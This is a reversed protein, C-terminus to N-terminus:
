EEEVKMIVVMYEDTSFNGILDVDFGDGLFTLEGALNTIVTMEDDVDVHESKDLISFVRSYENSDKLKIIYADGSDNMEGPQILGLKDAIKKYDM